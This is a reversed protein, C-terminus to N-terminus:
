GQCGADGPPQPCLTRNQATQERDSIPQLVAVQYASEDGWGIAHGHLYLISGAARAGAFCAYTLVLGRLVAAVFGEGALGAVLIQLVGASLCLAGITAVGRWYDRGIRSVARALFVPNFLDILAVETSAAMAAIPLSPVGALPLLWLVPDRAIELISAGGSIFEYRHELYFASPIWLWGAAAIGRFAPKLLDEPGESLSDSPLVSRAGEGTSRVLAFVFAWAAAHAIWGVIPVAGVVSLGAIMVLRPPRLPWRVAQRMLGSLPEAVSRPVTIAPVVRGCTACVQMTKSVSLRQLKTCAPCLPANCEDCRWGAAAGPHRACRPGAAVARYMGAPEAPAPDSVERRRMRPARGELELVAEHVAPPEFV